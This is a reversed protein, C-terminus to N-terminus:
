RVELNEGRGVREWFRKLRWVRGTGAREEWQRVNEGRERVEGRWVAGVWRRLGDKVREKEIVRRRAVLGPAVHVIGRTGPVCEPPLVCRQVLAEASPRAALYRGLRIAALSRALRRSVLTTHTLFISRAM